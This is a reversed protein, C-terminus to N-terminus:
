SLSGNVNIAPIGNDYSPTSIGLQSYQLPESQNTGIQTRHFGAQFENVLSASAIFTHTISANYFKNPILVPWGPATSGGINAAPFTEDENSNAVFFRFAFKSRASQQYDSNLM